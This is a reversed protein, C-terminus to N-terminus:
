SASGPPETPVRAPLLSTSFVQFKKALALMSPTELLGAAMAPM